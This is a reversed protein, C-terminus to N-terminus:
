LEAHWLPSASISSNELTSGQCVKEGAHLPASAAGCEGVSNDTKKVEAATAPTSPAACFRMVLLQSSNEHVPM